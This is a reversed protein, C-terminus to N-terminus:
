DIEYSSQLDIQVWESQEPTTHRFSRYGISGMGGRPSFKALQGLQTDIHELREELQNLSWAKIPETTLTSADAAIRTLLFASYFLLLPGHHM